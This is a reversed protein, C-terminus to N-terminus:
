PQEEKNTVCKKVNIAGYAKRPEAVALDYGCLLDKRYFSNCERKIFSINNTIRRSLM